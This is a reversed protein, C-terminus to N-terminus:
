SLPQTESVGFLAQASEFAVTGQELAWQPVDSAVDTVWDWTPNTSDAPLSLRIRCLLWLCLDTLAIVTCECPAATATELMIGM